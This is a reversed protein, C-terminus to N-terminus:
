KEGLKRDLYRTFVQTEVQKGVDRDLISEQTKNQINFELNIRRKWTARNDMFLPVGGCVCM